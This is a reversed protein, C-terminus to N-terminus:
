TKSRTSKLFNKDKQKPPKKPKLQEKEGKLPALKINLFDWGGKVKKTQYGQASIELNPMQLFYVRFKGSSDSTFNKSITAGVVPKGTLSDTVLGTIWFGNQSFVTISFTTAFFLFLSILLKPKLTRESGTVLQYDM